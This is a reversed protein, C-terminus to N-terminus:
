GLDIENFGKNTPARSDSENGRSRQMIKETVGMRRQERACVICRNRELEGFDAM